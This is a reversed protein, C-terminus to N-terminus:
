GWRTELIENVRRLVRDGGMLGRFMEVREEPAMRIFAPLGYNGAEEEPVDDPAKLHGLIAQAAYANMGARRLFLEWLTEEQIVIDRVGAAEPAYRILLSVLWKALTDEGGGVYYVQANTDLRVVFGTFEAFATCESPTLERATEDIRNAESVLVIIHEYRLAIDRIRERIAALGKHGPRPKQMAKLLTTVVVGTTPSVILDAEAALPSVVPSRSVSNRNWALINWRDFDREIVEANPYLKEIRSFVGRELTLSKIVKTPILTSELKPCPASARQKSESAPKSTRMVEPKITATTELARSAEVQAMPKTSSSFFSSKTNKQRKTTHFDVYNSLLTSTASPDNCGLLMNPLHGNGGYFDQYPGPTASHPDRILDILSGSDSSNGPEPDLNTSEFRRKRVLSEINRDDGDSSSTELQEEDEELERLIALGLQKWVYDASTAVEYAGVFDSLAKVDDDGDISESLSIHGMRSPFPSWRLERDAQFNKPWPSINFPRCTKQICALQSIFDSSEEQWEPKPISFDMAPIQIRAIADASQLQEQEINRKASTAKDSLVVLIDDSFIKETDKEIRAETLNPEQKDLVQDIDVGKAFASIDIALDSSPPLSNMPTLPGEVKLSNISPREIELLPLDQLPPMTPSEARDLDADLLTSPDSPIPIQCVEEKPLFYDENQDVPSLPPTIAMDRCPKWHLEGDELERQEDQTWKDKLANALYGLAARPIDIKEDEISQILKQRCQFSADPFDLSEDNLTNLPESPVSTLDIDAKRQEKVRRALERCDYEPDSRLLPLELKLKAFEIPAPLKFEEDNKRGLSAISSLLEFSEKSASVHEIRPVLYPIHLQPLSNNDIQENTLLQTSQDHVLAFLPSVDVQSDVSLGNERAYEDPSSNVDLSVEERNM